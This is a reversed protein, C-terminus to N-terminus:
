PKREYYEDQEIAAPAARRLGMRALVALVDTDGDAIDVLALFSRCRGAACRSSDPPRLRALPLMEVAM